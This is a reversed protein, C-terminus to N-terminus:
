RHRQRLSRGRHPQQGHRRHAPGTLQHTTSDYGFSFVPAAQSGAGDPDPRTVSTLRGSGDYALTASRSAFDTVGTLRGSTYSFATNRSFPDTIQTLLGSTYSYSVINSHRDVRSTLLGTTGFNAKIGHKDTVTFTNDGNKVLTSFTADGEAKHYGGAGDDAFWLAQGTSTVLLVGGTLLELRDLGALQWGRGFAHTSSSRNVLEVHGSYDRTVHTTNFRATLTVTYGYRGDAPLTGGDQL